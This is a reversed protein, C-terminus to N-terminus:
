PMANTEELDFAVRFDYATVPQVEIADVHFDASPPGILAGGCTLPATGRLLSVLADKDSASMEATTIRFGRHNASLDTRIKGGFSRAWDGWQPIDYSTSEAVRVTTGGITLMVTDPAPPAPADGLYYYTRHHRVAALM